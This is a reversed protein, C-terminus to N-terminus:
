AITLSKMTQFELAREDLVFSEEILWVEGM